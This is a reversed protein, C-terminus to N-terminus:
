DLLGCLISNQIILGSPTLRLVDNELVAYGARCCQEVFQFQKKSFEMNYLKKLSTLNLGKSLRLQLILYDEVDCGGDPVPKARGAIFDETSAPWYFRQNNMCGHAAPGIGLYDGCDWYILNHRGEYGPKAFNSIEYQAYGARTLQDVAYLYYDAAEDDSPLGEPRNRGFPTNPEIKLLYASIHTCGEGALLDLTEDFEARSYQPLALMIDGSINTFGAEKAMRIARRAEEATHPRGLRRLSDDRATQVGFSIRNVGAARFGALSEPTVTEPNAELTIEAGPAPAAAEILRAAQAPTMLSPTGGGFYLTDPHLVPRQPTVFLDMARLVADIYEDPVARCAGASYFDCYRCKALCYPIHLYLGFAM